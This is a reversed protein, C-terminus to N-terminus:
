GPPIILCPELLLCGIVHRLSELLYRWTTRGATLLEVTEPMHHMMQHIMHGIQLCQYYNKLAQPSARCYRHELAYGGNKQTNFGENEIKWRLRGAQALAQITGRDATLDTVFTFVHRAIPKTDVAKTGKPLTLEECSLWTLPQQRYRADGTWSYRQVIHRQRADRYYNDLARFSSPPLSELQDQLSPLNGEKLTTIWRWHHNRCLNFFPENPYLGDALICIRERPFYAKLKATNTRMM